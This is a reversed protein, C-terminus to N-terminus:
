NITEIFKNRFEIFKSWFLNECLWGIEPEQACNELWTVGSASVAAMIVNETAGVSPYDLKLSTGRLGCSVATLGTGDDQCDAGLRSLAKVHLDIPRDGIVCGGPYGMLGKKNRGLMAGLLIVSSRMKGTKDGPVETRDARSCDLYLINM